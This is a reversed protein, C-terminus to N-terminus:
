FSVVFLQWLVIAVLLIVLAVVSLTGSNAQEASWTRLGLVFAALAPVLGLAFWNTVRWLPYTDRWAFASAVCTAALYVVAFAMVLGALYRRGIEQRRM